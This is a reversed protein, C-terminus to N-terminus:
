GWVYLRGADEWDEESPGIGEHKQDQSSAIAEYEVLRFLILTSIRSETPGNEYLPRKYEIHIASEKEAIRKVDTYAWSGKWEIKSVIVQIDILVHITKMDYKLSWSSKLVRLGSIHFLTWTYAKDLHSSNGRKSDYTKYFGDSGLLYSM